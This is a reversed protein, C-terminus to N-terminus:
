SGRLNSSLVLVNRLPAEVIQCLDQTSVRRWLQDKLPLFKSRYLKYVAAASTSVQVRVLIHVHVRVGVVDCM